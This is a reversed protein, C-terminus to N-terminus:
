GYILRRIQRVTLTPSRFRSQTLEDEIQVFGAANNVGEAQLDRHRRLVFEEVSEGYYAFIEEVVRMAKGQSIGLTNELHTLLEVPIQSGSM